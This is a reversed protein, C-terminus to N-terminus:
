PLRFYETLTQFINTSRKLEKGKAAKISSLINQICPPIPGSSVFILWNIFTFLGSSIGTLPITVSRSQDSGAYVWFPKESFLYRPMPHKNPGSTNLFNKSVFLKSRMQLDWWTNKYIFLSQKLHIHIKQSADILLLKKLGLSNHDIRFNLHMSSLQNSDWRNMEFLLTLYLSLFDYFYWFLM